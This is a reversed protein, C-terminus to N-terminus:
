SAGKPKLSLTGWFILMAAGIVLAWGVYASPAAGIGSIASVAGRSM